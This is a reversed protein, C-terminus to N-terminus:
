EDGQGRGWEGRRALDDYNGSSLRSFPHVQSPMPCDDQYQETLFATLRKEFADLESMLDLGRLHRSTKDKESTLIQDDQNLRLFAIQEVSRGDVADFGGQRAMLALLFLQPSFNGDEALSASGGLKYDIIHLGERLYDIRDARGRIEIQRDSIPLVLKGKCETALPRGLSRATTEFRAAHAISDRLFRRGLLRQREPMAYRHIVEDVQSLLADEVSAPLEDPYREVFLELLKHVIDGRDRPGFNEDYSPLKKLRLAHEAYIAYPDRIWTGIASVTLKLPKRSGPITPAPRSAPAVPGEHRFRLDRLARLRPAWDFSRGEGGLLQLFSELRVMFRSPRAPSPGQRESRTLLVKPAAALDQFDHAVRGIEAEPLPMGLEKRMARSFFPDVAADGPWVGEQLGGVILLDASQLRGELVGLISLRPHQGGPPRV